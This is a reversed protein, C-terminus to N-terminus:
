LYKKNAKHLIFINWNSEFLIRNNLTRIFTTACTACALSCRLSVFIILYIFFKFFFCFYFWFSYRVNWVETEVERSWTLYFEGFKPSEFTFFLFRLQLSENSPNNREKKRRELLTLLCLKGRPKVVGREDKWREWRKQTLTFSKLKWVVKRRGHM